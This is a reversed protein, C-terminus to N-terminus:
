GESIVAYSIPDDSLMVFGKSAIRLAVAEIDGKEQRERLFPLFVEETKEQIRAMVLAARARGRLKYLQSLQKQSFDAITEFHEAVARNPRKETASEPRENIPTDADEFGGVKEINERFGTAVKQAKEVTLGARYALNPQKLDYGLVRDLEQNLRMACPIIRSILHASTKRTQSAVSAVFKRCFQDRRLVPIGSFQQLADQFQAFPDAAVPKEVKPKMETGRVRHILKAIEENEKPEPAANPTPQLVEYIEQMKAVDAQTQHIRGELESSIMELYTCLSRFDDFADTM